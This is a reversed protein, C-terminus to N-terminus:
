LTQGGIYFLRLVAFIWCSLSFAYFFFYGQAKKYKGSDVLIECTVIMVPFLFTFTFAIAGVLRLADAWFIYENVVPNNEFMSNTIM